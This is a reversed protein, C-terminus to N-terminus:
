RYAMRSLEPPRMGRLPTHEPVPELVTSSELPGLWDSEVDVALARQILAVRILVRHLKSQGMLIGTLGALPGKVLRVTTGALPFPCSQAALKSTMIRRVAAIEEECIPVPQKGYGVLGRVGPTTLVPLRFRVDLRAFLYGPFAPVLLESTRDRWKRVVTQFPTFAEYGKQMLSMLILQTQKPDVLVAFWEQNDEQNLSSSFSM